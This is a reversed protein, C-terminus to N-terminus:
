EKAPAKEGPRLARQEASLGLEPVASQVVNPLKIPNKCAVPKEWYRRILYSGDSLLQDISRCVRSSSAASAAETRISRATATRLHAAHIAGPWTERM